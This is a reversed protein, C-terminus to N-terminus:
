INKKSKINHKFEVTSNPRSKIAIKKQLINSKELGYFTKSM